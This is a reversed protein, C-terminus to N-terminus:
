TAVAHGYALGMYLSNVCTSDHDCALRSPFQFHMPLRVSTSHLKQEKEPSNHLSGGHDCEPDPTVQNPSRIPWFAYSLTTICLICPGHSLPSAYETSEIRAFLWRPRNNPAAYIKNHKTVFEYHQAIWSGIRVVMVDLSVSTCYLAITFKLFDTQMLLHHCGLKM